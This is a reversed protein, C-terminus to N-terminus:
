LLKRFLDVRSSAGTKRLLNEQHFKVTRPRIKLQRGIEELSQGLCLKELIEVERPTLKLSTALKSVRETVKIQLEDFSPTLKASPEQAEESRWQNILSDRLSRKRWSFAFLSYEHEGLPFRGILEWSFGSTKWLDTWDSPNRFICFSYVLKSSLLVQIQRAAIGFISASPSQYTSADFMWRFLLAEEGSALPQEALYRQVLPGVPDQPLPRLAQSHTDIREFHLLGELGPGRVAEFHDQERQLAAAALAAAANGEVRRVLEVVQAHESSQVPEIPRPRLADVLARWSKVVPVDRDLFSLNLFDYGPSTSSELENVCFERVARSLARYRRPRERRFRAHLAVRALAHPRLGLPTREIFTQRALWNFLDQAEAAISAGASMRTDDVVEATTIRAISCVDLVLQQGATSTDPCLLRALAHQVDRLTDSSFQVDPAHATLDAAIALALPFGAALALIAGQAAPPVGRLELFQLAEADDFPSLLCKLMLRSWAPDLALAAPVEGRSAIVLLVDGALSPVLERLFWGDGDELGEFSDVLLVARPQPQSALTPGRPGFLQQSTVREVLRATDLLAVPHGLALARRQFEQLLASKGVGVQGSLFLLSHTSEALAREFVRLEGSRGVFARQREARLREALTPAAPLTVIGSQRPQPAQGVTKDAQQSRM